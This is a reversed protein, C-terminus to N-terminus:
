EFGVGRDANCIVRCDPLQHRSPKERVCEGLLIDCLCSIERLHVSKLMVGLTACDFRWLAPASRLPSPYRYRDTLNRRRSQNWRQTTSIARQPPSILQWVRSICRDSRGSTQACATYLMCILRLDIALSNPHISHIFALSIAFCGQRMGLAGSHGTDSDSSHLSPGILTLRRHNGIVLPNSVSPCHVM